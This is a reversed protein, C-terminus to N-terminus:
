SGGPCIQSASALGQVHSVQSPAPVQETPPGRGALSHRDTVCGRLDDSAMLSSGAFVFSLIV